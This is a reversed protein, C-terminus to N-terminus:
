GNETRVLGKVTIPPPPPPPLLKEEENLIKSKAKVIITNNVIEYTIPLNKFCSELVEKLEGNKISIDVKGAQDLLDDEYFFQYGTQKNIQKFIKQLSVNKESLTVKQATGKASVQLFAALLLVATFKMILLAQRVQLSTKIRNGPKPAPFGQINFDM